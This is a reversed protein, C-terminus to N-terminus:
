TEGVHTVQEDDENWDPVRVAAVAVRADAPTESAAWANLRAVAHALEQVLATLKEHSQAFQRVYLQLADFQRRDDSNM